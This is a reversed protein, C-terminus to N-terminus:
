NQKRANDQARSEIVKRRSIVFIAGLSGVLAGAVDTLWDAIDCYRGSVFSQHFEDVAGYFAALALGLLAAKWLPVNPSACATTILIGLILYECFHGLYSLPGKALDPLSDGPISSFMFICLAWIIAAGATVIRRVNSVRKQYM